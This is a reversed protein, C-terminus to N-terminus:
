RTAGNAAHRRTRWGLAGLGLGFLAWSTPEPVPAQVLPRFDLYLDNGRQALALTGGGLPSAFGTVALQVHAADFGTIGGSTHVIEWQWARQNDFGALPAAQNAANLTALEITFVSNASTGATITLSGGIDWLDWGSGAVAGPSALEVLYDGGAGWTVAGSHTLGPSNGPSFRGGDTVTVAGWTGAGKALSGFNVDVAGDISGNNVLLAGNLQLRTGAQLTITGGPAAVSGVYARSGGNLKLAAGSANGLAGGALVTLGGTSAWGKVTLNGAVSVDGGDNAGGTWSVNRGAGVVVAGRNTVGQLQAGAAPSVTAGNAFTTGVFRRVASVDHTGEGMLQGGSLTSAGYVATAGADVQVTAFGLNGANLLLRGGGVSYDSAASSAMTLQGGLVTVAGTFSNAGLLSQTAGGTKLLSGDGGIAGRYVAVGGGDLTLGPTGDAGDVITLTTGADNGALRGTNLGGATWLAASGSLTTTGFVRGGPAELWLTGGNVTLAGLVLATGLTLQGAGTKVLAGSAFSRLLGDFRTDQANGGVTLVTNDLALTGSGSLGGFSVAPLQNIQFQGSQSQVVTSNQLALAHGVLVQAGDASTSGSFSNAGTLWLSSGANVTLGGSGAINGAFVSGGQASGLFLRAAGLQLNGSGALSALHVSALQDFEASAGAAVSLRGSGLATDRGLVLRGADVWVSGFYGSGDGDLRLTGSGAKRLAGGDPAGAVSTLAGTFRTDQGNGGVTLTRYANVTLRGSGALGGLTIDGFGFDLGDDALLSLTSNRLTQGAGFLLHGGELRTPGTFGSGDGLLQLYGGGSKVLSGSGKLTGGLSSTPGGTAQAITLASTGIDVSGSSILQHLTASAALALTGGANVTVMGAGLAGASALVVKGADIRLLGAFDPSNGSLSLAGAGAKVLRGGDDSALSRLAGAFTTDQGNGGVTLQRGSQFSLRGSGTLGGLVPHAFSMDLGDDSEISVTAYLLPARDVPV